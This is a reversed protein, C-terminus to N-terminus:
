HFVIKFANSVLTLLVHGSEAGIPCDELTLHWNILAM